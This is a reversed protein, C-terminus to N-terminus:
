NFPNKSLLDTRFVAALLQVVFQLWLLSNSSSSCTVELEEAFYCASKVTSQQQTSLGKFFTKILASHTQKAAGHVTEGDYKECLMQDLLRQQLKSGGSTTIM